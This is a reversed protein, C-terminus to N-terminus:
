SASIAVSLKAQQDGPLSTVAAQFDASHQQAFQKMLMAVNKQTEPSSLCFFLKLNVSFCLLVASHQYCYLAPVSQPYEILPFM